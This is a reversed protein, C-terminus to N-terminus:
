VYVKIKRLPSKLYTYHPNTIALNYISYRSRKLIILATLIFYNLLTAPMMSTFKYAFRERMTLYPRLFKRYLTHNYENMARSKIMSRVRRWPEQPVIAEKEERTLNPNEWILKPWLFNWIEFSRATWSSNGSRYQIIPDAILYARDIQKSNMIVLMHAFYSGYHATKDIELWIDKKVVISGIYSLAIGCTKWFNVGSNGNFTKNENVQFLPQKLNHSLDKTWCELNVLLLDHDNNLESLLQQIKNEFILDDDPLLWCYNGNAYTVSLDYGEDIGVLRESYFYKINQKDKFFETLREKHVLDSAGDLVIIEIDDTQFKLISNITEILLDSRNRTNICISLLYKKDM